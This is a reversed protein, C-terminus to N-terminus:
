LALRLATDGANDAPTHLIVVIKEPPRGCTRRRKVGVPGAESVPRSGSLL